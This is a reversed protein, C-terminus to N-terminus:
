HLGPFLIRMVRKQVMEIKNRLYEPISNSWVVCCYELVARVLAFYIHLLDNTPVGARKLVRIIHLRKSAKGFIENINNNWKFNDMITLGLVKHSSVKELPVSNITLPAVDPIHKLPLYADGQM